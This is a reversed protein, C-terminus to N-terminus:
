PNRRSTTRRKATRRKTTKRRAPDRKTTGCSGAGKCGCGCDGHEPDRKKRRPPVGAMRYAIAIAQDQPYGEHRLIRIKESIFHQQSKTPRSRQSALDRQWTALQTHQRSRGSEFARRLMAPIAGSSRELEDLDAYANRVRDSAEPDTRAAREFRGVLRGLDYAQRRAEDNQSVPDRSGGCGVRLLKRSVGPSIEAHRPVVLSAGSASAYIAHSGGERVFQAGCDELQRLLERRKMQPDRTTTGHRTTPRRGVRSAATVAASVALDEPANTVVHAPADAFRAVSYGHAHIIREFADAVEASQLTSSILAGPMGTRRTDAPVLRSPLTGDRRARADADPDRNGYVPHRPGGRTLTQRLGALGARRAETLSAAAGSAYWRDPDEGHFVFWDVGKTARGFGGRGPRMITVPKYALRFDDSLPKQEITYEALWDAPDRAEHRSRPDRSLRELRLGSRQLQSRFNRITRFDSPTGSTTVIPARPDPPVFQWHRSRTRRVIWGQQEAMRRLEDVEREYDREYDRGRDRGTGRVLGKVTAAGTARRSRGAAFALRREVADVAARRADNFDFAEGSAVVRGEDDVARWELERGGTGFPFPRVAFRFGKGLPFTSPPASASAPSRLALARTTM